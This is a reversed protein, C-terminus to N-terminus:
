IKHLLTDPSTANIQEIVAQIRRRAVPVVDHSTTILYAENPSTLRVSVVYAPNVLHKKHVRIFNPLRDQYYKM